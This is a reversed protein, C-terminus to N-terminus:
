AAMLNELEACGFQTFTVNMHCNAHSSDDAPFSACTTATAVLGLTTLIEM